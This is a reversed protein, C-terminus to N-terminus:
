CIRAPRERSCALSTGGPRQTQTSFWSAAADSLYLRNLREVKKTSHTTSIRILGNTEVTTVDLESLTPDSDNRDPDGEQKASRQQVEGRVDACFSANATFSVLLLM